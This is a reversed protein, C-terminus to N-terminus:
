LERLRLRCAIHHLLDRLEKDDTRDTYEYETSYIVEYHDRVIVLMTGPKAREFEVSYGMGLLGILKDFIYMSEM